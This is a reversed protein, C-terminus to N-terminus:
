IPYLSIDHLPYLRPIYINDKPWEIPVRAIGSTCNLKM